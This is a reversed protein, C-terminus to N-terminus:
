YRFLLSCCSFYLTFDLYQQFSGTPLPTGPTSTNILPEPLYLWIQCVSLAALPAQSITDSPWVVWWLDVPIALPLPSGSISDTPKSLLILPLVDLSSGSSSLSLQSKPPPCFLEVPLLAM